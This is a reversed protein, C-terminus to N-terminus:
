GAQRHEIVDVQGMSELDDDGQRAAIERMRRDYDTRLKTIEARLARIRDHDRLAAALTYLCATLSLFIVVGILAWAEISLNSM